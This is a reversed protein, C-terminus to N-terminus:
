TMDGQSWALFRQAVVDQGRKGGHPSMRLLLDHAVLMWKLSKCTEEETSASEVNELLDVWVPAWAEVHQSSNQLSKRFAIDHMNQDTYSRYGGM